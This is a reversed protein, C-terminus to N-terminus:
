PQDWMALAVTCIDRVIEPTAERPTADVWTQGDGKPWFVRARDGNIGETQRNTRRVLTVTGTRAISDHLAKGPQAYGEGPGYTDDSATRLRHLEPPSVEGAGAPGPEIVNGYHTGLHPNARLEHHAAREALIVNRIQGALVLSELDWPHDHITSVHQTRYRNDWVHLRYERGMVDCRLMGFGQLTWPQGEPHTLIQRVVLDLEPTHTMTLDTM